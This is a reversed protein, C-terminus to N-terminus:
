MARARKAPTVAGSLLAAGGNDDYGEEDEDEGLGESIEEMFDVHRGRKKKKSAKIQQQAAFSENFPHSAVVASLDTASQSIPCGHRARARVQPGVVLVGFDLKSEGRGSSRARTLGRWPLPLSPVPHETADGALGCRDTLQPAPPPLSRRRAAAAAAAAAPPAELDRGSRGKRCHLWSPWM